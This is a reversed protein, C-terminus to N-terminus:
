CIVGSFCVKLAEKWQEETQVYNNERVGYCSMPYSTSGCHSLYDIRTQGNGSSSGGSSRRCNRSNM